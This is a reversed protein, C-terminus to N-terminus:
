QNRRNKQSPSCSDRKKRPIGAAECKGDSWTAITREVNQFQRELWEPMPTPKRESTPGGIPRQSEADKTWLSAAANPDSLLMGKTQLDLLQQLMAKVHATEAEQREYFKQVCGPCEVFARIVTDDPVETSVVNKCKM